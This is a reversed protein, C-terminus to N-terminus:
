LSSPFYFLLRESIELDAQSALVVGLAEGFVTDPPEAQALLSLYHVNPFKRAAWSLINNFTEIKKTACKVGSGGLPKLPSGM